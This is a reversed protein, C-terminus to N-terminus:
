KLRFSVRVLRTKVFRLIGRSSTKEWSSKRSVGAESFQNRTFATCGACGCGAANGGNGVRDPPCRMKEAEGSEAAGAYVM